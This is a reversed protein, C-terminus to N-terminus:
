YQEIFDMPHITWKAAEELTMNVPSVFPEHRLLGRDRDIQLHLHSGKADGSDGVTGISHGPKVVMGEEMLIMDLHGYVSFVRERTVPLAHELIVANGLGGRERMIRNVRGGAVASVLAGKPMKFDMGTHSNARYEGSDLDHLGFHRTSYFLKSTILAEAEASNDDNLEELPIQLADIDYLPTQVFKAPSIDCFTQQLEADSKMAGWHPTFGFPEIACGFEANEGLYLLQPATYRASVLHTIMIATVIVTCTLVITWFTHMVIRERYLADVLRKIRTINQSTLKM